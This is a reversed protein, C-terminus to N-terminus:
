YFAIPLATLHLLPMNAISVISQFLIFQGGPNKRRLSPWEFACCAVGRVAGSRAPDFSPLGPRGNPDSDYAVQLPTGLSRAATTAFTRLSTGGTKPFHMIVVHDSVNLLNHKHANDEKKTHRRHIIHKVHTVYKYRAAALEVRM